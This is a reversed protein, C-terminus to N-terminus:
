PRVSSTERFAGAPPWPRGVRMGLTAGYASGSVTELRPRIRGQSAAGRAVFEDAIVVRDVGDRDSRRRTNSAGIATSGRRRTAARPTARDGRSSPACADISVRTLEENAVTRRDGRPARVRRRTTVILALGVRSTSRARGERARELSAAACGRRRPAAEGGRRTRLVWARPALQARRDVRRGPVPSRPRPAAVGQAQAQARAHTQASSRGCVAPAM